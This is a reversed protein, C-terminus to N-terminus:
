EGDAVAGHAVDDEQRGEEIRDAEDAVDNDRAADIATDGRRDGFREHDIHQQKSQERHLV